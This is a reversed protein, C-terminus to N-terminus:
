PSLGWGQRCPEDRWARFLSARSLDLDTRGGEGHLESGSSEGGGKRGGEFQSVFPSCRMVLFLEFVLSYATCSHSLGNPAAYM